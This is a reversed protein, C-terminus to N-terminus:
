HRGEGGGGADAEATEPRGLQLRGRVGREDSSPRGGADLRGKRHVSRNAMRSGSERPAPGRARVPRGQVSQAGDLVAGALFLDRDKVFHM